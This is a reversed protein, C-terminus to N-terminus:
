GRILTGKPWQRNWRPRRDLSTTRGAASGAHNTLQSPVVRGGARLVNDFVIVEGFEVIPFRGNQEFNSIGHM